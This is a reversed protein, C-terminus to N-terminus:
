APLKPHRLHFDTADQYARAFALLKAEGYLQGLFTLSVPTGPGGYNGVMGDNGKVAPPADAARFGNPLIVAPHGTLNTVTLQEGNTPAVIVDFGAFAKEVAQMALFKARNAQVYEVAPVFRAVRFSNPWADASQDTLLKDRGTRTLEDFAAAAEVNLITVIPEYPLKPLEVPTMKVGMEAIKKLAANNFQQDHEAVGIFRQKEEDSMEKFRKLREEMAARDFKFESELFGIRFKRWDRSADWNFAAHQVSRDQGDPGAIADLVLACDEAARCIPGLKDQSWSLAMAGTRPVHGFTPRLGTCGCRTSPSSISGLTESGISFGVCGAATASAPGASSGSSGQDPNWPNRTVGGFWIDGEALSGLTLKAILVAGARDLRKVVEADENIVQDKYPAAGWTTPYGKVALLDKAGWPIGHLPGRYKGAAIDRDAEKAQARARDETLTIVFKLIPDYRKLRTLYVDTLAASSVKKTRVLEALERVSYFAIEDLNEPVERSAIAPAASMRIPRKIPEFHATSTTLPDFIMAPQVSNDMHLKYIEDYGKTADNLDSLMMDRDEPPIPVDAIIAAQSIMDATIQPAAAGQEEVMGWLVGPFLTGALGFRSCASLFNRRNLM